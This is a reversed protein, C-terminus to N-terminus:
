LALLIRVHARKLCLLHGFAVAIHNDIYEVCVRMRVCRDSASGSASSLSDTSNNIRYRTNGLVVQAAKNARFITCDQEEPIYELIGILTATKELLKKYFLPDSFICVCKHNNDLMDIFPNFTVKSLFPGTFQNMCDVLAENFVAEGDILRAVLQFFRARESAILVTTHTQPAIHCWAFDFMEEFARNAFLFKEKDVLLVADKIVELIFPASAIPIGPLSSGTSSSIM